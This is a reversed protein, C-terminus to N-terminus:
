NSINITATDSIRSTGDKLEVEAIVRWTGAENPITKWAVTAYGDFLNNVDSIKSLATKQGQPSVTYVLVDKINTPQYPKLFLALPFQSLTISTPVKEFFVGAPEPAVQLMFPVDVNVKNGVNDEALVTLTHNGPSLTKAEYQYSFPPGVSFGVFGGDIRYTVKTVGRPAQAKVMLNITRSLLIDNVKPSIVELIPLSELSHVDDYQTPPDEFSIELNPDKNKKRAIWNQVAQEWVSYAPDQAPNTPFPGQPNDKDVYHLIDHPLLYTREVIYHEPTSSTALLGTVKDVLLKVQGGSFGNLVPKTSPTSQAAPFNEIPSNKLSEKMFYNWIQGAIKSGGYGKKMPRNDTNGAWVGAVLSPTYGVQWADVYNNTTGSKAAVARGPLSLSSGAGFVYARSADDSLVNSITATLKPDLVQEGPSAKWEFMVDNKPGVVKLISSPSFKTGNNAFIGYANVHELMKVEGGGLVLSLGFNGDSLTTYGMKEAFSIASKLGVLYLTKVAPINLSGQLAQRMTVPGREGLDYDQPIYPNNSTGFPTVVDYLVTSPTYGKAFAATYIIPKISSGPQRRAQTVVNFKGNISDDNFDRSGVMALIQGTKPDLAVLAANNAGGQELLEKGKDQIAKEAIQQKDWDLTTLVRLGGREVVNEGYTEILQQQVYTVFHPAQMNGVQRKLTMPEAKAKDAEDASLYHEEVMRQLVFNRRTKLADLNNLFVSPKQPMGALTAAEALTLDSVHKGFYAQSASEVGYNTSGYPIENFYIKLIEDKTYKQELWVSLILEKVKRSLSRENTLIANKVLQQTLTSAGGGIRGKGLMGYVLSRAISLPRVGSHQYFEKDETAIVGDVLYRPIQNLEVITRKKDAYIEYLLHQGTRDYIKTSQESIRESLRDPDPLDRGAWVVLGFMFVVLFGLTYLSWRLIKKRKIKLDKTKAVNNPEGGDKEEPTYGYSRKRIKFKPM